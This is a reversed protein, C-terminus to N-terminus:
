LDAAHGRVRIGGSPPIDVVLTSPRGMDEGQRITVTAPPDVRGHARLYGGLAAAAAGTAPDEVVGGVPFPDRADFGDDTPVVVQITTWGEVTMLRQLAEFDYTMGALVARDALVLVPHWVGAFAVAPTWSPALVDNSWGFTALLADLRPGDLAATRPDVSELTATPGDDDSSTEVVVDGVNTDLVYTGEGHARALAVGSAITAHGCFDVEALPSWYRTVWRDTRGTSAPALFATESYGVDAAIALMTAADPLADAIHVGAPNGGAPDSTFAALRQLSDM